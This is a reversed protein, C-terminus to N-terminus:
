VCEVNCVCVTVCVWGVVSPVSWSRIFLYLFFNERHFDQSIEKEKEKKKNNKKLEGNEALPKPQQHQNNYKKKKKKKKLQTHVPLVFVETEEKTESM